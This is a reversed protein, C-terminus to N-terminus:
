KAAVPWDLVERVKQRLARPTFPKQLFAVGAELVGGSAIVNDTYGSMFLVRTKPHGATFRRALERGSIGPMVVDTLLLQIERSGHAALNEAHAASEAVLVAYGQDELISRTLDRVAEEDEVLLITETGRRDIRDEAAATAKAVPEEVRPLYVKFTTGNNPESYVWIYGGSQKVIGYVTSLGLGTGRSGGKTTYFPEFIHAQTEQDMGVGTDSVALMVYPGPKVTAHDRAYNADLDVNSTEITLRGGSAMADRANVVLNMIVQEVQSPDAKVTGINAGCLTIMEIDAGMLRSLLKDLGEVIANLDLLKPQLVQKRSFALLQRVLVSARESANGIQRIDATLEPSMAARLLAMEAYGNIITLLNNFDHAIGGALRGVAEMRRSQQLQNELLKRETIDVIIGEVVQHSDSGRVVVASDSVWVVHGDKHRVRYEAQFPEGRSSSMEAEHVVPHDEAVVHRMWEPSDALWEDPTYGLIAEIQPSVYYWRGNIGLEAIYSIAAVQEILTRYKTEAEARAHEAKLRDSIDHAVCVTGGQPMTTIAMEIPLTTDDGRHLSIQGSWKGTKLVSERVQEELLEIDRHDYVQRWSKGLVEQPSPFGVMRAFASNAYLHEANNDLIAMGDLTSEMAVRHRMVAASTQAQRFETVGLRVVYSVISVALLSFGIMRWQPGLRAVLVLVILPALALMVNKLALDRLSKSQTAGLPPAEAEEQWRGAWMAAFLFPITWGIDYWSGTFMLQNAWSSEALGSGLTYILLFLALGGYLSRIRKTKATIMQVTALLTLTLNIGVFIWTVILENFKGEAGELVQVYFLGFFLSLFLIAIQVSDLVMEASFEPSDKEKDLFLAMAYFVGQVDFLIRVSSFRPVSAHLWNEYYMWGLNAVGWTTISCGVLIWFPRSLGHGRKSAGFCKAAALGCCVIQLFNTLASGMPSMGLMLIVGVSLALLVIVSVLLKRPM